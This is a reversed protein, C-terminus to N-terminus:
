WNITLNEIKEVQINNNGRQSFFTPNNNVVVQQAVTKEADPQDEETQDCTPGVDIIAAEVESDTAGEQQLAGAPQCYDLRIESWNEGIHGQYARPGGGSSPCWLNITEKGITAPEKRTIAFHFVGLLFSEYCVRHKQVLDRKKVPTGDVSIYFLQEADISDDENVLEVLARVLSEDKKTSDKIELFTDRFAWMADLAEGYQGKFHAKSAADIEGRRQQAIILVFVPIQCDVLLLGFNDSQYKKEIKKAAGALLDRRYQSLKPAPGLPSVRGPRGAADQLNQSVLPVAASYPRPLGECWVIQVMFGPFVAPVPQLIIHFIVMLGNNRHIVIQRDLLQDTVCFIAAPSNQRLNM